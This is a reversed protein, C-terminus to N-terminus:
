KVLLWCLRSEILHRSVNYPMVEATPLSQTLAQSTYLCLFQLSVLVISILCVRILLCTNHMLGCQWGAQRHPPPLAVVSKCLPLSPPLSTHSNRALGEVELLM